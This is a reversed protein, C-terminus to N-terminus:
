AEHTEEVRSLLRGARLLTEIVEGTKVKQAHVIPQLTRPDRTLSYGRSLVQLPSLAALVASREALRRQSQQLGRRIALDIKESMEDLEQQVDRLRELPRAFFRHRQVMQLQKAERQLRAIIGQQLQGLTAALRQRFEALSPVASVAAASPTPARLDAVLDAITTDTEHGVASIIPIASRIIAEALVEENFAWLDELSGGGRGVILVDVRPDLQNLLAITKAIKEAAGEGQVPV